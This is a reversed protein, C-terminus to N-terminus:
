SAPKDPPKRRTMTAEAINVIKRLKAEDIDEKNIMELLRVILDSRDMADINEDPEDNREKVMKEKWKALDLVQAPIPRRSPPPDLEREPMALVNYPVVGVTVMSRRSPRLDEATERWEPYVRAFPSALVVRMINRAEDKRGVEGLEVAYSNLMDMCIHPPAYRVLPLIAELDSVARQHDGEIARIVSVAKIAHLSAASLGASVTERYHYLATDFDRDHFALAGLSLTAKIKYADPAADVAQEFLQRAAQRDGSARRHTAVALFYTGIAQYNRIPINTLILGYERARDFQRCAHAHEALKILRGALQHYNEIGRRLVQYLEASKALLPSPIFFSAATDRSM